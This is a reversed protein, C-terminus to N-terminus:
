PHVQKPLFCLLVRRRCREVRGRFQRVKLLNSRHTMSGAAFKSNEERLAAISLSWEFFEQHLKGTM